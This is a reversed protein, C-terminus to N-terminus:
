DQKPRSLYKRAVKRLLQIRREQTAKVQQLVEEPMKETEEKTYNKEILYKLNQFMKNMDRTLPEKFAEQFVVLHDVNKMFQQYQQELEQLEDLALTIAREFNQQKTFKIEDQSVAKLIELVKKKQKEKDYM